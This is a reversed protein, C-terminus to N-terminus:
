LKKEENIIEGIKRTRNFERENNKKIENLLLELKIEISDLRKNQDVTLNNYERRENISNKLDKILEQQTIDLLNTRKNFVWKIILGFLLQFLGLSGLLVMIEEFIKM